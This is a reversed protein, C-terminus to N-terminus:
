SVLSSGVSKPSLRGSGKFGTNLKAGKKMPFRWLEVSPGSFYEASPGSFYEASPGELKPRNKQPRRAPGLFFRPPGTDALICRRNGTKPASVLAKRGHMKRYDTRKVLIFGGDAEKKKRKKAKAGKSKRKRKLQQQQAL